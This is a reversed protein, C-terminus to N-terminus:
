PADKDHAVIRPVAFCGDQQAPADSLAQEVTLQAGVADARLPADLAVAHTMPAIGDVDVSQLQEMYVLIADLERALHAVEGDSLALRALAATARVEDETIKM